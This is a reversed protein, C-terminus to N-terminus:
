EKINLIALIEKEELILFEEKNIKIPHGSYKPYLVINGVKIKVPIIKGDDNLKGEGVAIVEGRTPREKADDPLVLGTKTKQDEEIKKVVINDRVPIIEEM